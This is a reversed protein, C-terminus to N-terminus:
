RRWTAKWTSKENGLGITKGDRDVVAFVQDGDSSTYRFGQRFGGRWMATYRVEKTGTRAKILFTEGEGYHYEPITITAGTSSHWVGAIDWIKDPQEQARATATMVIWCILCLWLRGLGRM